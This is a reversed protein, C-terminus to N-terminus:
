RDEGRSRGRRYAVAFITCFIGVPPLLLVLIGANLAGARRAGGAAASLKCLACQASAPEPLALLAAAVLAAALLLPLAQNRRKM